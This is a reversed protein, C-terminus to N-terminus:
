FSHLIFANITGFSNFSWADTGCGSNEDDADFYTSGSGVTFELQPRHSHDVASTTGSYNCRPGGSHQAAVVAILM